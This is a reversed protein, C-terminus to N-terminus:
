SLKKLHRITYYLTILSVIASISDAAPMAMWIGDLGWISPFIFIFPLLFLVQRSLSLFIAIKAKGISQYFNATVIQFGVLFFASTTIQLGNTSLDILQKDKTFLSVIWLPAFQGIIFGIITIVSAAIIAYRFTKLMRGYQKAGYNYGVIPQMGQNIGIIALVLLILFSNLIGYAGIALDGGHKYLSKNMILAIGSAALQMLFPSLGISVISLMISKNLRFHQRQFHLHNEKNFFHSMVWICSAFISINTAWAAGQIGWDCWFIFIPDLITNLVAGFILTYMAKRPYGSARMMNNFGFGLTSFIQGPIIIRMYEEAYPITNETGGLWLLIQHLYIYSFILVSGSILLTLVFANGLINQAKDTNHEGLCISIRAASGAGILMGCAMLITMLPFTLTLGSIAYAGVGQGIFIRDVVNYLANSVTGIIAPLTYAWLLKGVSETELRNSVTHDM